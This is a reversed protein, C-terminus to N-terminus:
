AMASGNPNAKGDCFPSQGSSGPPIDSKRQLKTASTFAEGDAMPVSRKRETLGLKVGPDLIAELGDVTLDEADDSTSDSSSSDSSSDASDDLKEGAGRMHRMRFGDRSNLELAREYLRDVILMHSRHLLLKARVALPFPSVEGHRMAMGNQRDEM